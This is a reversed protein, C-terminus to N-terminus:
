EALSFCVNPRWYFLTPKTGVFSREGKYAGCPHTDDVVTITRTANWFGVGHIWSVLM